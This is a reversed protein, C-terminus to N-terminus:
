KKGLAEDLMAALKRIEQKTCNRSTSINVLKEMVDQVIEDKSMKDCQMKLTMAERTSLKSFDPKLQGSIEYRYSVSRLQIVDKSEVIKGKNKGKAVENLLKPLRRNHCKVNYKELEITLNWSAKEYFQKMVDVHNCLVDRYFNKYNTAVLQNSGYILAHRDRNKKLTIYSNLTKILDKEKTHPYQFDVDFYNNFGELHEVLYLYRMEVVQLRAMKKSFKRKSDSVIDHKYRSLNHFNVIQTRIENECEIAIAKTRDLLFGSYFYSAPYYKSELEKCQKHIEDMPLIPKSQLLIAERLQPPEKAKKATGYRCSTKQGLALYRGITGYGERTLVQRLLYEYERIREVFLGLNGDFYSELINEMVENYEKLNMSPVFRYLNKLYTEKETKTPLAQLESFMKSSVIWPISRFTSESSGLRSKEINRVITM